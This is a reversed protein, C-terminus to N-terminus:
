TNRGLAGGSNSGFRTPLDAPYEICEYAIVDARRAPQRSSRIPLAGTLAARTTSMIFTIDWVSNAHSYLHVNM